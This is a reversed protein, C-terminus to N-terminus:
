FIQLAKYLGRHVMITERFNFRAADKQYKYIAQNKISPINGIVSFDFLIKLVKEAGRDVIQGEKVLNNYVGVFEKPNFTQKRIQSLINFIEEYEPLVAYIEDIIESKVYESFENDANKIITPKILYSKNEFAIKACEQFYKVFDRPRNQTSRLIYDFTSMRKNKRTGMSVNYIGFLRRWCEDFSLETTGMVINLRHALMLKLKQESWTIYIINDNWKNKDSDTLIRFIDNRLFVIPNIHYDRNNFIANIDQIAKFLGTILNFYNRREEASQFDKYDEDLEDFVIFYKRDDIHTLIIEELTDVYEIWSISNRIKEGDINLGMGAIQFGFGKVTYQEILRSLSKKDDAEPYVKKLKERVDSDINENRIMQKCITTYILYKWITIYQNPATYKSNDLNYLINFPFNKFSMKDTFIDSEKMECIYEAIATKGEGKRGIVFRKEGDMIQKVEEVFYFYERSEQKAELKWDKIIREYVQLNNKISEYCRRCYYYPKAIKNKGCVKCLTETRIEM